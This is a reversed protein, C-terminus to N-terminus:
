EAKSAPLLPRLLSTWLKYGEENMHLNDRRFLEARPQGDKGLMPTAVDIYTLQPDAQAAQELGANVRKMADIYQMRSPSPKVGIIFVPVEPLKARVQKMFGAFSAVITESARGKAVDNDGSYVVIAAPDYPYVLREAFLDLDAFTSGGFGRNLVPLDPFSEDVKWFGISSSGTFLIPHAPPPTEQDKAEFNQIAKEWPNEEATLALALVALSALLAIPNM